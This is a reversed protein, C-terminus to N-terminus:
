KFPNLGTGELLQMAEKKLKEDESLEVAQGAFSKGQVESNDVFKKFDAMKKDIRTEIEQLEKTKKEIDKREQIRAAAAEIEQLKEAATAPPTAAPDPIIPPTEDAM